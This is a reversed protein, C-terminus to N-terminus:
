SPKEPCESEQLDRLSRAWKKHADTLSKPAVGNNELCTMLARLVALTMDKPFPVWDNLHDLEHAFFGNKKQMENVSRFHKKLCSGCVEKPNTRRPLVGHIVLHM